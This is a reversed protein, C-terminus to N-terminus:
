KPIATWEDTANLARRGAELIAMIALTEEKPVVPERNEFFGLMREIFSQFFGGKVEPINIGKGEGHQVSIQFPHEPLMSFMARRGHEYDLLMVPVSETGCHMLRKVGPGMLSVIMEVQHISYIAFRGPGRTAVFKIDNIERNTKIDAVEQAFRLASSSFMPTKSKEAWAFLKEATKLDPAFTKDVYVPKGSSLVDRCLDEHREPNNPSLVVICDSKETLEEKTATLEVKQTACWQRSTQGGAEQDKEAWAYCVDFKDKFSSERIWKPYNNAHWEDLFYDIFGIKKM